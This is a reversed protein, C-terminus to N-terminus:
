FQAWYVTASITGTGTVEACMAEGPPTYQTPTALRNVLNGGNPLSVVNTLATKNTACNTGSGSFLQFTAANGSATLMYGCLYVRQAGTGAVFETVPTAGVGTVFSVRDCARQASAASPCAVLALLLILCLTVHKM